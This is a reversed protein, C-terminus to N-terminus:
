RVQRAEREPDQPTTRPRNPPRAGRSGSSAGSPPPRGSAAAGAAQQKLVRALEARARQVEGQLRKNEFALASTDQGRAEPAAPAPKKSAAPGPKSSVAPAPMKSGARAASQSPAEAASPITPPPQTPGTNASFPNSVKPKAFPDALSSPKPAFPDALSSSKKAFPDALSSPKPAFPDALSSPKPAFPDAVSSPKPAFPDALGGSPKSGLADSTCSPNARRGARAPVASSASAATAGVSTGADAAAPMTSTASSAAATRAANEKKFNALMKDFDSLMDDVKNDQDGQAVAKQKSPSVYDDEEAIEEDFDDDDYGEYDEDYAPSMDVSGRPAGSM